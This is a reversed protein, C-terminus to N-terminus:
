PSAPEEGERREQDMPASVFAWDPSRSRTQKCFALFKRDERPIGLRNGGVAGTEIEERSAKGRIFTRSRESVRKRDSLVQECLTGAVPFM